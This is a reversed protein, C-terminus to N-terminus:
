AATIITHQAFPQLLPTDRISPESLQALVEKSDCLGSTCGIFCLVLLIILTDTSRSITIKYQSLNLPCFPTSYKVVFVVRLMLVARALARRARSSAAGRNRPSLSIPMYTQWKKVLAGNPRRVSSSRAFLLLLLSCHLVPRSLCPMWLARQPTHPTTTSTLAARSIPYRYHHLLCSLLANLSADDHRPEPSSPPPILVRWGVM